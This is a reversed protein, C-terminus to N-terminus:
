IIGRIKLYNIILEVVKDLDVNSTNICLDYNKADSWEKGTYTKNYLAREKDSQLLMKESVTEPVQYQEHIRQIRVKPDGYLFIRVLNQHERLVFYGCRGIFVASHEKAIHQIVDTEADFLERDTPIIPSEPITIDPFFSTSQFINQWFSPAREERFDIDEEMVSLQKAANRIIERDAYFITLKDALQQGVYAGGSGLQRSITIAFLSTQKM